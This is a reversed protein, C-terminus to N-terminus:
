APQSQLLVPDGFYGALDFLEMIELVAPSHDTLRLVKSAALAELKAMILLQLGATDIESVSALNIDVEAHNRLADVLRPKIAASHYITLEGALRLRCTGNSREEHIEM